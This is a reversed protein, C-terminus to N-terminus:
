LDTTCLFCRVAAPFLFRGNLKELRGPKLEDKPNATDALLITRARALIRSRGENERAASVSSLTEHAEHCKQYLGATMVREGNQLRVM